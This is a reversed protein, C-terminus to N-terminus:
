KKKNYSSYMGIQSNNYMKLNGLSYDSRLNTRDNSKSNSDTDKSSENAGTKISFDKRKFDFNFSNMVISSKNQTSTPKYLDISQLVDDIRLEKFQTNIKNSPRENIASSISKHFIKNFNKFTILICTINDSAKRSLAAKMIMDVGLASQSSINDKRVDNTTTMWISDLIEQNSLVDYIGDCGLFIFDTEDSIKFENIQPIAILSNHIGGFRKLKAEVDGFARSVSLGGPFVRYPGVLVHDGVNFNFGTINFRQTPCHTQYIRGGAKLIRKEEDFDKPKHDTTLVELVKGLYKSIIARSDGVNAIYCM